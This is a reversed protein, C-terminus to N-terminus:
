ASAPLTELFAAVAEAFAVPQDLFPWHGADDIGHTPIGVDRLLGLSQEGTGRPSGHIYVTPKHIDALRRALTLEASREVLDLSNRHFTRPDCMQISAGYARRVVPHEGQDGYIQDLVRAYGTHLWEEPSFAAARRSYGCDPPSINGEVNVIARVLDPAMEGLFTGIVGGMSHGVVVVPDGGLDELLAILAAAHEDLGFPEGTWGSKGYGPLDPQLHDWASLRPDAMSDEFCLGSEGLGHIYLLTGRADEPPTTELRRVAMGTADHNSRQIALRRAPWTTM